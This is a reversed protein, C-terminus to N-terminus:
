EWKFRTSLVLSVFLWGALVVVNTAVSFMPAVGTMTQRLVDALYTLPIVKVVPLMFDPMIEIPIFIGSMFMMVFQVVQILGQGSDSTKVFSAFMYGMSVFTAAGLLVLGLIVTWNGVIKIGFVAYGVSVILVTQIVSMIMRVVVESAIFMSRPLPTAGLSKLIKRERLSVMRLSGFLGLQMLALALIGPLFYNIQSLEETQVSTANAEFVSPSGTMKREVANLIENVTSLLVQNTSVNGADYYVPIETKKGQVVSETLNEPLIIVLSRNGKKLEELEEERAGSYMKFVTVSEFAEKLGRSVEGQDELVLGVDFEMAKDGSNFITGLILVFVIPFIIFWFIQMRERLMERINADVLRLFVKM